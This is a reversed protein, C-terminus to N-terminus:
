RLPEDTHSLQNIHRITLVTVVVEFILFVVLMQSGILFDYTGHIIMPAILAMRLNFDRTAHDGRVDAHKALGYFYGMYVADFAHGPVSLVARMIATTLSGDLVYLVNEFTAFGLSVVVAYVIADFLYNFHPSKWTGRKLVLYKVGEEVLAVTLFNEILIYLLSGETLFHDLFPEAGTEILAAPITTLAGGLFLLVLLKPPEKEISDKRYIHVLLVITPLLALALLPISM